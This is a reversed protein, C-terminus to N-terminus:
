ITKMILQINSEIQNMKLIQQYDFREKIVFEKKRMLSDIDTIETKEICCNTLKDQEAHFKKFYHRCCVHKLLHNLYCYFSLPM